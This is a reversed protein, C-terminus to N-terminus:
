YHFALIMILKWYEINKAYAIAYILRVRLIITEYYFYDKVLM